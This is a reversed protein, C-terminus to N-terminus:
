NPEFLVHKVRCPNKDKKRKNQPTMKKRTLLDLENKLSSPMKLHVILIFLKQSVRFIYIYMIQLWFQEGSNAFPKPSGSIINRPLYVIQESFKVWSWQLSSGKTSPCSLTEYIFRHHSCCRGANALQVSFCVLSLFVM